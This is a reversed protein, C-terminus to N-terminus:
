LETHSEYLTAYSYRLCRRLNDPISALPPNWFTTLALYMYYFGHYWHYSVFTIISQITWRQTRNRVWPLSEPNRCAPRDVDATQGHWWKQFDPIVKKSDPDSHLRDCLYCMSPLMWAQILLFVTLFLQWFGPAKHPDQRKLTTYLAGGSTPSIHKMIQTWTSFTILWLRQPTLIVQM